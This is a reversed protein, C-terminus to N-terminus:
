KILRAQEQGNRILYDYDSPLFGEDRNMASKIIYWGEVVSM